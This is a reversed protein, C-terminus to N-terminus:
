FQALVTPTFVVKVHVTDVIDCMSSHWSVNACIILNLICM